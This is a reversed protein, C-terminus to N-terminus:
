EKGVRREESRWPVEPVAAIAAELGKGIGDFAASQAALIQLKSPPPRLAALTAGQPAQLLLTPADSTARLGHLLVLATYILAAAAVLGDQWLLSRSSLQASKASMSGRLVIDLILECFRM